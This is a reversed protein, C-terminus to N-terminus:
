QKRNGPIQYVEWNGPNLEVVRGYIEAAESWNEPELELDGLVEWVSVWDPVLAVARQYTVIAESWAQMVVSVDGLHVWMEGDDTAWAM